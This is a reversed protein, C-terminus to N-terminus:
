RSTAHHVSQSTIQLSKCSCELKVPHGTCENRSVDTQFRLPFLMNRWRSYLIFHEFIMASRFRFHQFGVHVRRICNACVSVFLSLPHHFILSRSDSGCFIISADFSQFIFYSSIACLMCDHNYFSPRYFLCIIFTTHPEVSRHISSQVQGFRTLRKWMDLPHSVKGVDAGLWSVSQRGRFGSPKQLPNLPPSQHTNPIRIKNSPHMILPRSRLCKCQPSKRTQRVLFRGPM